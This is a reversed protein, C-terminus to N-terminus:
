RAEYSSIRLAALHRVAAASVVCSRLRDKVHRAVVPPPAIGRVQLQVATGWFLLFRWFHSVDDIHDRTLLEISIDALFREWHLKSL